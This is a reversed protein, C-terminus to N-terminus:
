PAGHKYRMSMFLNDKPILFLIWPRYCQNFSPQTVGVFFTERKQSTASQCSSHKFYGFCARLGAASGPPRHCFLLRDPQSLFVLFGNDQDANRLATKPLSLSCLAPLHCTLCFSFHCLTSDTLSEQLKGAVCFRVTPVPLHCM